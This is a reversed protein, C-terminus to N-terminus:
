NQANGVELDRLVIIRFWVPASPISDCVFTISGASHNAYRAGANRIRNYNGDYTGASNNWVDTLIVDSDLIGPVNIQARNGGGWDGPRITIYDIVKGRKQIGTTKEYTVSRAALARTSVSGSAYKQETISANPLVAEDRAFDDLQEALSELAAQVTAAAGLTAIQRIGIEEAASTGALAPILEDNIYDKIDNVGQDFAAKLAAATMGAEQNPRDPLREIYRLEREITPLSM